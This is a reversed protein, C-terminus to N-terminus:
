NKVQSAQEEESKETKTLMKVNHYNVLGSFPPLIASLLVKFIFTIVHFPSYKYVSSLVRFSGECVYIVSLAYIVSCFIRWGKSYIAMTKAKGEGFWNGLMEFVYSMYGWVWARNGNPERLSELEENTSKLKGEADNKESIAQDLKAKTVELEEKIDKVNDTIGSSGRGKIKDIAIESGKLGAAGVTTGLAVKAADKLLSGPKSSVLGAGTTVLSSEKNDNIKKSESDKDDINNSDNEKIAPDSGVNSADKSSSGVLVGEGSASLGISGPVLAFTLAGCLVYSSLKKGFVSMQVGRKRARLELDVWM